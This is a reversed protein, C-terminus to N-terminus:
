DQNVLNNKSFRIIVTKATFNGTNKEVDLKLRRDESKKM